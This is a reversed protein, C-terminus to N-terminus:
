HDPSLPRPLIFWNRPQNGLDDNISFIKMNRSVAGLMDRFKEYVCGIFTEKRFFKRRLLILVARKDKQPNQLIGCVWSGDM